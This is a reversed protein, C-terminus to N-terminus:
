IDYYNINSFFISTKKILIKILLFNYHESFVYSSMSFKLWSKM